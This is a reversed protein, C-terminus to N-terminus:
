KIIFSQATTENASTLQVVYSGKSLASVDIKNETSTSLLQGDISYISAEFDGSFDINIMETAPNPYISFSIPKLENISTFDSVELQVNDLELIFGNTSYNCFAIYVDQNVFGATDLLISKRSWSYYENIVNLLTDTFSGILSDTNSLLVYYSDPYSPDVSRAEWSLKSHALLSQKPLIIYDEAAEGNTYFSSSAASTDSSTEYSIWANTFNSVAAEPTNGDQNVIAWNSPIGNTFDEFLVTTQAFGLTSVILSFSCILRLM